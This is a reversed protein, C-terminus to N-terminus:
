IISDVFALVIYIFMRIMKTSVAHFLRYSVEYYDTIILFNHNVVWKEWQRYNNGTAQHLFSFRVCLIKTPIQYPPTLHLTIGIRHPCYHCIASRPFHQCTHRIAPTGVAIVKCCSRTVELSFNTSSCLPLSTVVRYSLACGAVRRESYPLLVWFETSTDTVDTYAHADWYMAVRLLCLWEMKAM